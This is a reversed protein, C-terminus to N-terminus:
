LDKKTKFLEKIKELRKGDTLLTLGTLALAKAGLILAEDGEKSVAANCFEKTHAVLDSGGIKIYPHITPVVQSINGADTSGIGKVNEEKVDCGLYQMSEEFVSDFEKNILLNDVSNQYAIVNLKAGTALAAGAAIDKVRKTVEDCTKRTNARIYFRAKAYEPVINPMDGGHTIIGHIRVDSTVHQRLANIGNYLQIVADLANIGQEPCAAAHAAKGIFEFDLPDVALSDATISTENSPHIMMCADIGELLNYKVFSAKASGNEGGEEAPTGLIRVEGGTEEIVKSVAIASAISLTGIINHGCAHGLNPLADYEALYAITPGKKSSKKSAIFSTSHGALEKDVIFGNTVLKKILTESAFFEKNGIEPKSHIAHSIRIYDEKQKDIDELVTDRLDKFRYM